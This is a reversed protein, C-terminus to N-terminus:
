FNIKNSVIYCPRNKVQEFTRGIYLGVIGILTIIIGSLFWVSVILSAYGIIHIEGMLSRYITYLAFIMSFLSITLGLQITLRLPKDSFSLIVNFALSFLRFLNYSSKGESRSAHEVTIESKRFGVWQIMTPFYKIKDNMQLVADITKRHYIGFNAVEANQKTETLYELTKYFIKSGLKKFFSDRRQSRTALVIEYGEKSRNYLKLIEEPQDQLDGDMVVIWEGSSHELGAIIAYHQGFNKSFHIGKIRNDILCEKQIELWDNGPSQDNVLIIEYSETIKTLTEKLRMCLETVFADCRYLPVVISIEVM